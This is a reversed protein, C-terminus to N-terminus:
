FVNTLVKGYISGTYLNQDFVPVNDNVDEINITVQAKSSLLSDSALVEITMQTPGGNDTDIVQNIELGTGAATM